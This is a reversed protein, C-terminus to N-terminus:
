RYNFPRFVAAVLVTAQERVKHDIVKTRRQDQWNWDQRIKEANDLGRELKKRVKESSSGHAEIFIGGEEAYSVAIGASITSGTEKSSNRALVVGLPAGVDFSRELSGTCEINCNKPLVSSYEILNYNHIDAAKLATDFSGKKTDAEGKGWVLEIDM